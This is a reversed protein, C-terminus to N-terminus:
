RYILIRDPEVSYRFGTTALVSEIAEAPSFDSLSGHLDTRLASARLQDDAFELRRGTERAAWKLFELLSRGELEFEPALDTVWNWYEAHAAIAERATAGSPDLTLREGAIAALQQADQRVDVRGERVAVALQADDVAVSFQTGVDSVSGMGTEITLANRRFAFEGTDAYIRGRLLTFRDRGDIRIASDADIRLSTNDTLLVGLGEKAGTVLSDGVYVEADRQPLGASGAAGAVRVVTGVGIRPAVEPAPDLFVAVAILVSAALGFSAIWPRWSTWAIRRSWARRVRSYVRAQDPPRVAARWEARVRAHVRDEIDRPIPERSGALRLLRQMTEEDPLRNETDESM